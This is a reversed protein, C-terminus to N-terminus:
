ESVGTTGFAATGLGLIPNELIKHDGEPSQSTASFRVSKRGKEGASSKEHSVRRRSRLSGGWPGRQRKRGGRWKARRATKREAARMRERDRGEVM